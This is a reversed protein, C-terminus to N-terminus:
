EGAVGKARADATAPKKTAMMRSVTAQSLGLVGGLKAQSYGREVMEVMALKRILVLEDHIRTLVEEM